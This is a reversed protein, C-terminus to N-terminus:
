ASLFRRRYRLAVSSTPAAGSLEVSVQNPGPQLAWLSSDSTLTQYLNAGGGDEVTKFGPRSDVVLTEGDDLTHILRLVQGTTLNRLVPDVGPGTILWEPWAEVDGGNDLATVAYVESSSLVLPFFPFFTAAAGPEFTVATENQDYWYPDVARFVVVVKQWGPGATQGQEIIEMGGAYMANLDRTDGDHDIVRLKGPGRGVNLASLWARLAARLEVPGAAQFLLPVVVERPETRTYRLRAGPQFPVEEEIFSVPPMFRGEVGRLVRAGNADTLNHEVSDADVWRLTESM